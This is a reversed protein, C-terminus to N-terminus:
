EAVAEAAALKAACRPGRMRTLSAKSTIPRRCDLCRMAIGYGYERLVEIAQNVVRGEHTPAVYGDEARHGRSQSNDSPPTSTARSKAGPSRRQTM